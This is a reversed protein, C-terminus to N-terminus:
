RKRTITISRYQVPRPTNQMQGLADVGSDMELVRKGVALLMADVQGIRSNLKTAMFVFLM